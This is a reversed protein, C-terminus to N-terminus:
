GYATAPLWLVLQPWFVLILLGLLQLLIFPIVGKYIDSLKVNPPCVGKLYFLAFGVPPTLFSTQLAMAVLMVFWVLEPNDVVGYGNIDLGLASVVPALLPLIILTIEIWDLFF